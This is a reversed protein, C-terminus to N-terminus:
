SEPSTLVDALSKALLSCAPCTCSRDDVQPPVSTEELLIWQKRVHTGNREMMMLLESFARKM